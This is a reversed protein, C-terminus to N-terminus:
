ISPLSTVATMPLMAALVAAGNDLRPQRLLWCALLGASPQLLAVGLLAFCGRSAM